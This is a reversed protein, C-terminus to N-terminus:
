SGSGSIAVSSGSRSGSGGSSDSGDKQQQHETVAGQQNGRDEETCGRRQVAVASICGDRRVRGM